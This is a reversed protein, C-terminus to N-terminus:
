ELVWVARAVEFDFAVQDREVIAIFASRNQILRIQAGPLIGLSALRHVKDPDRTDIRIVQVEEDLPIKTLSVESRNMDPAIM